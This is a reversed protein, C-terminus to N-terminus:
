LAQESCLVLGIWTMGVSFYLFTESDIIVVVTKMLLYIIYFVIKEKQVQTCCLADNGRCLLCSWIDNAVLLGSLLLFSILTINLAFHVYM